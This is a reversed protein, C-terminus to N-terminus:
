AEGGGREMVVRDRGALKAEYLAEDARKLLSDGTDESSLGAVGFSATVPNGDELLDMESLAARVREAFRAGEPPRTNPMLAMFEEGGYRAVLDEKRSTVSLCEAFSKLVRDGAAHGYTDNVQKFHDLDAMVITLPQQYRRAFSLASDFREAFYRRNAVGTLPDTRILKEITENAKQLEQNRKKLKRAMESMESTLVSMTKIIDSDSKGLNEGIFIKDGNPLGFSICHFLTRGLRSMTLFPVNELEGFQGQLDEDDEDIQRLLDNLHLGSANRGQALLRCFAENAARITGDAKCLAVATNSSEVLHYVLLHAHSKLVETLEPQM